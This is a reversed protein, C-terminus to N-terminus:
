KNAKDLIKKAAELSSTAEVCGVTFEEQIKGKFYSTVPNVNALCVDMSEMELPSMETHMHHGQEPNFMLMFLFVKM